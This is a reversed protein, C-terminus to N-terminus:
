YRVVGHFAIISCCKCLVISEMLAVHEKMLAILPTVLISQRRWERKLLNCVSLAVFM